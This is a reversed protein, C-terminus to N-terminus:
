VSVRAAQALFIHRRASEAFGKRVVTEPRSVDLADFDSANQALIAASM